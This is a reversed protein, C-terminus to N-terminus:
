WEEEDDEFAKDFCTEHSGNLLQEREGASLEPMAAQILGGTHQWTTIRQATEPSVVMSSRRQCFPCIGTEVEVRGTM